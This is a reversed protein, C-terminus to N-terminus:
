HIYNKVLEFDFAVSWILSQKLIVDFTLYPTGCPEIKLGNSKLM